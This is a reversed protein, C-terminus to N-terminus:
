RIITKEAILRIQNGAGFSLLATVNIIVCSFFAVMLLEEHLIKKSMTKAFWLFMANTRQLSLTPKEGLM